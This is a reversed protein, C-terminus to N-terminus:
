APIERGLVLDEATIDLGLERAKLLILKQQSRPIEGGCGKRDKSRKWSSIYNPLIGFVEAAKSTGGCVGIVYEAPSIWRTAVKGM